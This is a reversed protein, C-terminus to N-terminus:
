AVSDDSHEVSSPKAIVEILDALLTLDYNRRKLLKLNRKFRTTYAKKRM